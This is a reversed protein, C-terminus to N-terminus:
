KLNELKARLKAYALRMRSKVTGLPLALREAIDSQALDHMFALEIIQRQEEPLEKLAAGVQVSLQASQIQEDVGPDESAAEIEDVDVYPQSSSHRLRDIRSNRAITFIWTSVASREPQYLACRNWVKLMVDQVIDDAESTGAGSRIMMAKIRPGFHEFLARFADRDRAQALKNMLHRHLEGPLDLAPEDPPQM